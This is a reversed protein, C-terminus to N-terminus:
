ITFNMDKSRESSDLFDPDMNLIYHETNKEWMYKSTFKNDYFIEIWPIPM